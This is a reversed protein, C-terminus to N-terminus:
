EDQHVMRSARRGRMLLHVAVAVVVLASTAPAFAGPDQALALGVLGPLVAAGLSSAAAQLGVVQDAAEPSTREATTLVLLPYVPACGLGFLVVSAMGAAPYSLNVLVAAVALVGIATAMVAWAGIREALRGFGLRGVVLTIWYGSALGGALVADVGLHLTLFSYAWIAVASELGTQVLVAALGLVTGTRWVRAPVVLAATSGPEGLPGSPWRHRGVALVTGTVLLTAAVVLYAARWGGGIALAVTVILPSVAAGVGYWAHLLNIRRPGFRRAAHANLTADIAGSALGLAAVSVLFQWWTACLASGAVAAGSALTGLALLPGVGIRRAMRAAQTTSILSAAVGVPPVMGAAALPVGFSAQLSPWAVGLMSPPLAISFFALYALVVVFM